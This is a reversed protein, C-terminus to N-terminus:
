KGGKKRKRQEVIAHIMVGIIVVGVMCGIQLMAIRPDHLSICGKIGWSNCLHYVPTVTPVVSQNNTILGEYIRDIVEPPVTEVVQFGIPDIITITTM